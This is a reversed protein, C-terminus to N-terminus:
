DHAGKRITELLERTSHQKADGVIAVRIGLRRAVEGEPVTDATYDTGKAHVDPRLGELLTEVNPEDFPVVYDVMKLAAVLRFRANENLIPRGPGKLDKVSVDTNVGVVLVDGESRAGQLYRVHGAHLMDFCGNAFVVRWGESKHKSLKERLTSRDVIKSHADRM